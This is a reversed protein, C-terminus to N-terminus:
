GWCWPSSPRSRSGHRRNMRRPWSPNDPSMYIAGGVPAAVAAHEAAAPPCGGAAETAPAETTATAAAPEVPATGTAPGRGRTGRPRMEHGGPINFFEVVKDHSGFFPGYWVMGAFIAGIALIGLPITM